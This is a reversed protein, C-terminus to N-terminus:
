PTVDATRRRMEAGTGQVEAAMGAAITVTNGAACKILLDQATNNWFWFKRRNNPLTLTLAGVLSVDTDNVKVAGHLYARTTQTWTTSGVEEYPIYGDPEVPVSFAAVGVNTWTVAGDVITDQLTPATTWDPETAGSTHPGATLKQYMSGNHNDQTPCVFNYQAYSTSVQWEPGRHGAEIIHRTPCGDLVNADRVWDGKDWSTDNNTSTATNLAGYFYNTNVADFTGQAPDRNVAGTTALGRTSAIRASESVTMANSNVEDGLMFDHPLWLTGARVDTQNDDAIAIPHNRFVLEHTWRNWGTSTGADNVADVRSFSMSGAAGDQKCRIYQDPQGLHSETGNFAAIGFRLLNVTGRTQITGGEYVSGTQGFVLCGDGFSNVTGAETYPYVIVSECGIPDHTVIGHSGDTHTMAYYNGLTSIDVFSWDWSRSSQVSSYANGNADSGVTFGAHRNHYSECERVTSLNVGTSQPINGHDGRLAFAAGPFGDTVSPGGVTVCHIKVKNRADIGCDFHRITVGRSAAATMILPASAEALSAGYADIVISDATKSVIYGVMPARWRVAVGTVSGSANSAMTLITGTIDTSVVRTPYDYAGPITIYWGAEQTGPYVGDGGGADGFALMTRGSAVSEITVTPSGLTATATTGKLTCPQGMGDIAVMQDVAFDSTDVVDLIRYLLKSNEATGGSVYAGNGVSGNLSFTTPSLVTITHTGNAATNGVVGTIIETDGTKASHPNATTVVIPTANTANTVTKTSQGDYDGYTITTDQAYSKIVLHEIVTAYAGAPSEVPDDSGLVRLGTVGPDCLILTGAAFMSGGQGRVICAQRIRPVRALRYATGPTADLEIIGSQIKGTPDLTAVAAELADAICTGSGPVALNVDAVGGFLSLHIKRGAPVHESGDFVYSQGLLPTAANLARGLLGLVQSLGPNLDVSGPTGPSLAALASATVRKSVGGQVLALIETGALAAAATLQSFKKAM